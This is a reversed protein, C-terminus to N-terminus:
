IKDKDFNRYLIRTEINKRVNEIFDSVSDNTGLLHLINTRDDSPLDASELLQELDSTVQKIMDLADAMDAIADKIRDRDIRSLYDLSTKVM